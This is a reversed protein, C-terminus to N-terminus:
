THFEYDDVWEWFKSTGIIVLFAHQLTALKEGDPTHPFIGMGRAIDIDASDAGWWLSYIRRHKVFYYRDGIDPIFNM